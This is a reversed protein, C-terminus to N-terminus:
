QTPALVLDVVASRGGQVCEVAQRLGSLVEGPERLTIGLAGCSEAIMAYDPPPDIDTAMYNGTRVAAGHPYLGRLPVRSASYCANNFVLTLSPANAKRQGWLAAVPSSFNFVGDGCLAVVFDDPRALKM